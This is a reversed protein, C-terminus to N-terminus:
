LLQFETFGFERLQPVFETNWGGDSPRIFDMIFEIAATHKPDLNSVQEPTLTSSDFYRIIVQELRDMEEIFTEWINSVQNLIQKREETTLTSDQHYVQSVIYHTDTMLSTMYIDYGLNHMKNRYNQLEHEFEEATPDGIDNPVELRNHLLSVTLVLNIDLRKVEEMLEDYDAAQVPGSGETAVSEDESVHDVSEM